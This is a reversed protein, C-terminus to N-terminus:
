PSGNWLQVRQVVKWAAASEQLLLSDGEEVGGAAPYRVYVLAQDRTDDYGVFSFAVLGRAGPYRAQLAAQRTQDEGTLLDLDANDLFVLNAQAPFDSASVTESQNRDRFNVLTSPQMTSAFNVQLDRILAKSHSALDVPLGDKVSAPERLLLAVGNPQLNRDEIVAQYVQWDLAVQADASLTPVPWVLASGGCGSQLLALLLLIFILRTCTFTARIGKKM